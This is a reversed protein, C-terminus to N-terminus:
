KLQFLGTASYDAGLAFWATHWQPHVVLGAPAQSPNLNVTSFLRADLAPMGM